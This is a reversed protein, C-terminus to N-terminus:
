RTVEYRIFLKPAGQPFDEDLTRITPAEGFRKRMVIMSARRYRDKSVLPQNLGTFAIARADKAEVDYVNESVKIITVLIPYGDLEINEGPVGSFRNDVTGAVCGCLLLLAIYARKEVPRM